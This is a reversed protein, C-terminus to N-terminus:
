GCQYGDIAAAKEQSARLTVVILRPSRVLCSRLSAWSVNALNVMCEGGFSSLRSRGGEKERRSVKAM